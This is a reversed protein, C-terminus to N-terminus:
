ITYKAKLYNEVSTQDGASLAKNYVLFESVHGNMSSNGLSDGGLTLPNNIDVAVGDLRASAHSQGAVSNVYEQLVESAIIVTHLFRVGSSVSIPTGSWAPNGIKPMKSLAKGGLGSNTGGVGMYWSGFHDVGHLTNAGTVDNFDYVVFLSVDGSQTRGNFSNINLHYQPTFAATFDLSKIGGSEVLTPRWDSHWVSDYRQVIAHNGQGSQDVWKGVLDGVGAPTSTSGDYNQFTGADAKLWVLTDGISLPDFPPTAPPNVKLNFNSGVGTLKLNGGAVIGPNKINLPM